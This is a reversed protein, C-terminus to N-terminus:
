TPFLSIMSSPTASAEAMAILWAKASPLLRVDSLTRETEQSSIARINDTLCAFDRKTLLDFRDNNPKLFRQVLACFRFAPEDVQDALDRALAM